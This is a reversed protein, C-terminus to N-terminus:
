WRAVQRPPVLPPPLGPAALGLATVVAVAGEFVAEEASAEGSLLGALLGTLVVAAPAWPRLYEPLLAWFPRLRVSLRSAALLVAVITAILQTNTM